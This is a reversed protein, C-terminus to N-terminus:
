VYKVIVFDGENIIGPAFSILTPSGSITYDNMIELHIGNLFVFEGDTSVQNAMQIEADLAQQATVEFVEIDFEIIGPVTDTNGSLLIPRSVEVDLTDNSVAVGVAVVFKTAATPAITTLKGPESDSLYYVEGPVLTPSGTVDTWDDLQLQGETVYFADSGAIVNATALGIAGTTDESDAQALDVESSGSVYVAMGASTTSVFSAPIEINGGVGPALSTNGSLLIPLSIEIDLSTESLAKGVALVYQGAAIPAINTIKGYSTPSLFYTQGPTLYMSDSVNSWDSLIVQGETIYEGEEGISYDDVSFGVALVTSEDDARALAAAGSSPVYVVSGRLSATSFTAEVTSSDSPALQTNGSLLVPLGIEIDMVTTSLARGVRVVYEGAETPAVTSLSGAAVPSLFYDAGPSLLASGVITTWNDRQIQGETVYQGSGGSSADINALGVAGSPVDSNAIALEAHGESTVYVVMGKLTDSDFVADIPTNGPGGGEGSCLCGAVTFWHSLNLDNFVVQPIERTGSALSLLALDHGVEPFYFDSYVQALGLDNALARNWEVSVSVEQQFKLRHVIQQM